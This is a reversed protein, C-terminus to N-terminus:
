WSRGALSTIVELYNTLLDQRASPISAADPPIYPFASLSPSSNVGGGIARNRGHGGGGGGTEGAQAKGGPRGPEYAGQLPLGQPGAALQAPARTASQTTGRAHGAETGGTPAGGRVGAPANQA